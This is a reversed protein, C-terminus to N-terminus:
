KVEIERQQHAVEKKVDTRIAPSSTAKSNTKVTRRAGPAPMNTTQAEKAPSTKDM